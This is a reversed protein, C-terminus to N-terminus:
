KIGGEFHSSEYDLFGPEVEIGVQSQQAKSIEFGYRATKTRGPPITGTFGLGLNQDMDFVQKAEEGNPGGTARVRTLDVDVTQKTGNKITVTAIVGKSFRTLKTVQVQLGDDYRFWETAGIKAVTSEDAANSETTAPPKAASSAPASPAHASGTTGSTQKTADDLADGASLVIAACGGTFLVFTATLALFINRATHKKKPPQFQPHPQFQTYQQTM